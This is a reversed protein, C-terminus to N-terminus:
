HIAVKVMAPRLLKEKLMYGKQLVEVVTNDEFGEGVESRIVAEHLNPDFKEGVPNLVRLGERELIEFQQRYILEVGTRLSSAEEGPAALAREFNDLVPLLKAIIDASAYVAMEERERQNRRRFNEFDAQWRLVQQQSEELKNQLEEYDQLTVFVEEDSNEVVEAEEQEAESNKEELDEGKSAPSSDWPRNWKM